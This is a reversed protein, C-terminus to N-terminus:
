EAASHITRPENWLLTTEGIQAAPADGITTEGPEALQMTHARLRLEYTTHAPKEADLLLQVARWMRNLGAPHRLEAKAPDTILDVLFSFAPGEGLVTELGLHASEDLQFVTDIDTHRRTLDTIIRLPAEPGATELLDGDLWGRLLAELAPLTGRQASQSIATRFLTRNFDADKDPHLPLAIWSALYSLFAAGSQAAHELQAPPTADPDFLDPIADAAARLEGFAAEFSALFDALFGDGDEARFVEPLYDLFRIDDNAM